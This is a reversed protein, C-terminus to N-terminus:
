IILFVSTSCKYDPCLIPAMSFLTLLMWLHLLFALSTPLNMLAIYLSPGVASHNTLHWTCDGTNLLM